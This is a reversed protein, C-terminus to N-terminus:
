EKFYYDRVATQPEMDLPQQAEYEESIESSIYILLASALLTFM